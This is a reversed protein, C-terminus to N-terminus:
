AKDTSSNLAGSLLEHAAEFQALQDALEPADDAFVATYNESLEEPRVGTNRPDHPKPASM